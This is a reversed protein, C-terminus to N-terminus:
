HHGAQIIIIGLPAQRFVGGSKISGLKEGNPSYLVIPMSLHNMLNEHNNVVIGTHRPGLSSIANSKEGRPTTSTNMDYRYVGDEVAAFWEAPDNIGFSTVAYARKQLTWQWQGSPSGRRLIFIGSDTSAFLMAINSKSYTTVYLHRAPAKTLQSDLPSWTGTDLNDVWLIGGATGAILRRPAYWIESYTSLCYVAKMLESQGPLQSIDNWTHGFDPSHAVGIWPPSGGIWEDSGVNIGGWFALSTYIPVKLRTFSLTCPSWQQGGDFSKYLGIGSATFMTDGLGAIASTRVGTGAIKTWTPPLGSTFRYVYLGSDSGAFLRSGDPIMYLARVHTLGAPMVASGQNTLPQFPGNGLRSYVGSDTGAALMSDNWVKGATISTVKIGELGIRTWGSYAACSALLISFTLVAKGNARMHPRFAM